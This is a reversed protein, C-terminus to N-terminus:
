EDKLLPALDETVGDVVRRADTVAANAEAPGVDPLDDPYRATVAHYTLRATDVDLDRVSWGDPVLDLLRALNHTFPFPRQEAILVAKIAKEAAQQALWAALRPPADQALLSRAADLDEQAYRLWRGAESRVAAPLPGDPPM